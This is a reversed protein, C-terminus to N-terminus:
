RVPSKELRTTVEEMLIDPDRWRKIDSLPKFARRFILKATIAIPYRAEVSRFDYYSVDKGLAPVRTDERLITPNWYAATPFVETWLEEFVKAFIKGARGGYDTSQGATGGWEPIVPGSVRPLERGSWDAVSLVLLINRAPHDTPIHHGAKENTVTIRVRIIGEREEAALDMTATDQLLLVDSAGPMLHSFITKSDRELGGKERRAVRVAGRAPM